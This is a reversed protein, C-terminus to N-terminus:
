EVVIQQHNLMIHLREFHNLDDIVQEIGQERHWVFYFRLQRAEENCFVVELHYHSVIDSLIKELPLNDFVVPQLATTDAKEVQTKSGVAQSQGVVAQPVEHRQPQKSQRALHITAFTICSMLLLGVFAAAVKLMPLRAASPKESTLRQWEAEIAEDTLSEDVREEQLASCTKAMLTYLRRCEEEQLIQQWEQATYDHPHEMMLLLQDTKNM